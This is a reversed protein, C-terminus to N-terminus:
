APEAGECHLKAGRRAGMRNADDGIIGFMIEDHRHARLADDVALLEIAPALKRLHVRCLEVVEHFFRPFEALCDPIDGALANIRVDHKFMRAFGSEGNGAHDCLAAAHHHETRTGRAEVESEICAEDPHALLANLARMEGMQLLCTGCVLKDDLAAY